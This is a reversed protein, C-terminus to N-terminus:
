STGEQEALRRLAAEDHHRALVLGAGTPLTRAILVLLDETVRDAAHMIREGPAGLPDALLTAQTREGVAWAGEDGPDDVFDDPQALVDTVTLADGIDAITPRGGMGGGILVDVGGTGGPEPGDEEHGIVAEGGPHLRVAAGTAWTGLALVPVMWHLPVDLRVEDGQGVDLADMLLNATKSVWNHLTAFSLETREGTAADAFVVAPRDGMRRTQSTLQEYITTM